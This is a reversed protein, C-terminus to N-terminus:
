DHLLHQCALRAWTKLKLDAHILNISQLFSLAQLMQNAVARVCHLPFPKHDNSKLVDYLSYGLAEIGEQTNVDLNMNQSDRQLLSPHFVMFRGKTPIHRNNM